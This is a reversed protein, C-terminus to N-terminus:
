KKELRVSLMADKNYIQPVKIMGYGVGDITLTDANTFEGVDSKAVYAVDYIYGTREDLEQSHLVPITTNTKSYLAPVAFEGVRLFVGTADELLVAELNM